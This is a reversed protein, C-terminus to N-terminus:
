SNLDDIHEGVGTRGVASGEDADLAFLTLDVPAVAAAPACVVFVAFFNGALFGGVATHRHEAVSKLAHFVLISEM